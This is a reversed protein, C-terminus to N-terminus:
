KLTVGFRALEATLRIVKRNAAILDAMLHQEFSRTCDSFGLTHSLEEYITSVLEDYDSMYDVSLSIKRTKRNCNAMVQKRFFKVFQITYDALDLGFSLCESLAKEATDVWEAEPEPVVEFERGKSGYVFVDPFANAIAVSLSEPVVCVGHLDEEPMGEAITRSAIACDGIAKRWAKSLRCSEYQFMIDHEILCDENCRTLFTKIVQEDECQLFFRALREHVLFDYQILRSENIDVREFNYRFMSLREDALPTVRIGKRFAVFHGDPSLAHVSVKGYTTEVEALPKTELIYSSFNDIFADVEDSPGIYIKTYGKKTEDQVECEAIEYSYEEEDMANCIFERIAFWTEWSPGMRTTFSTPDGNIVIRQYTQSGFKVSETEISVPTTGSYVDFPISNRLFTAIAYKNGSGFFGIKDQGEKTSAGLLTFAGDEIEGKNTVCIRRNTSM